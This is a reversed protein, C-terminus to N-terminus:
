LIFSNKKILSKFESLHMDNGDPRLGCGKTGMNYIKTHADKFADQILQATISKGRAHWVNAGELNIFPSTKNQAHRAYDRLVNINGVQYANLVKQLVFIKNDRRGDQHRLRFFVNRQIKLETLHLEINKILDSNPIFQSLCKSASFEIKDELDEDVSLDQQVDAPKGPRLLGLKPFFVLKSTPMCDSDRVWCGLDNSLKQQAKDRIVQSTFLNNGFFFDTGWFIRIQNHTTVFQKALYIPNDKDIAATEKDYHRAHSFFADLRGETDRGTIALCMCGLLGETWLMDIPGNEIDKLIIGPGKGPHNGNLGIVRSIDTEYWDTSGIFINNAGLNINKGWHHGCQQLQRIKKQIDFKTNAM